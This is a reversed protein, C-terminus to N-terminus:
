IKSEHRWTTWIADDGERRRLFHPRGTLFDRRKLAPTVPDESNYVLTEAWPQTHSASVSSISSIRSSNKALKSSQEIIEKAKDHGQCRRMLDTECKEIMKISETRNKKNFKQASLDLRKMSEASKILDLGNENLLPLDQLELPCDTRAKKVRWIDAFTRYCDGSKSFSPTAVQAIAKHCKIEDADARRSSKPTQPLQPESVSKSIADGM